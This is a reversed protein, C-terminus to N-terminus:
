AQDEEELASLGRELRRALTEPRASVPNTAILGCELWGAYRHVTGNLALGHTVISVPYDHVIRSGALDLPVAPGPVKSVLLNALVPLQEFFKGSRAWRRSL